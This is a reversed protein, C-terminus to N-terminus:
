AANGGDRLAQRARIKIALRARRAAVEDGDRIAQGLQRELDMLSLVYNRDHENDRAWDLQCDLATIRRGEPLLRVSPRAPSVRGDTSTTPAAPGPPSAHRHRNLHIVTM